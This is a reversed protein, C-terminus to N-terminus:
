VTNNWQYKEGNQLRRSLNGVQEILNQVQYTTQVYLVLICACIGLCIVCLATNAKPLRSSKQIQKEENCADTIKVSSFSKCIAM